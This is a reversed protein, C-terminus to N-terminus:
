NYRRPIVREMGKFDRCLFVSYVNEIGGVTSQTKVLHKEHEQFKDKLQDPMNKDGSLVLVADYHLLDHFSPWIDYDNIRRGGLNVCYTTPQGDVYFALLSATMYGDSFIFRQPRLGQSLRAVVHGLQVSGRRVKKFPDLKSPFSILCAVHLFITCCVAVSVAAITWRRQKINLKSFSALFYASFSILGTLYCCLAWNAQVKGQISKIMFLFLLPISFWFSLPDEKRLKFIAWVMMVLLIPTVIGFQSGLFAFFDMLSTRLGM